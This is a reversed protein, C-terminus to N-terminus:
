KGDYLSPPLLGGEVKKLVPPKSLEFPFNLDVWESKVYEIKSLNSSFDAIWLNLSIRVKTKHEYIPLVQGWKSFVLAGDKAESKYKFKFKNGRRFIISKFSFPSVMLNSMSNITKGNYKTSFFAKGLEDPSQVYYANFKNSICEVQVTWTYVKEEKTVSELKVQFDQCVALELLYASILFAIVTISRM